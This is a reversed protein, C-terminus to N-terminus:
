AVDAPDSRLFLGDADPDRTSNAGQRRAFLLEMIKDRWSKTAEGSGM